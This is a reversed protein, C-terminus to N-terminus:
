LRGRAAPSSLRRGQGVRGALGTEPTGRLEDEVQQRELAGHLFGQCTAQMREGSTSDDGM